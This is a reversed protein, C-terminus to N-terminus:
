KVTLMSLSMTNKEVSVHPDKNSAIRMGFSCDQEEKKEEEVSLRKAASAAAPL